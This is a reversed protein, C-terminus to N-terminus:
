APLLIDSVGKQRRPFAANVLNTATNSSTSARLLSETGRSASQVFVATGALMAQLIFAAHNQAAAAPSGLLM